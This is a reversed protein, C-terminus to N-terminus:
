YLGQIYDSVAEIEDESLKSAIDAMIQTQGGYVRDGSKYDRLSAATYAAKQGALAPYGAPDNGKGQAGHCAACAPVNSSLNGGRYLQEGMDISEVDGAAEDEPMEITNYYAALDRLDQDSMGDLIGAMEPIMRDGEQIDVLQRYFYKEGLGSLRPWSDQIPERGEPGHCAVCTEALPEGAEPDGSGLVALGPELEVEEAQVAVAAFMAVVLGAILKKM